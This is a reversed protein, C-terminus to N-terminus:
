GASSEFPVRAADLMKGEREQGFVEGASIITLLLLSLIPLTRRV